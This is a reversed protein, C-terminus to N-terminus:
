LTLEMFVVKGEYFAPLEATPACVEFGAKAYIYQAAELKHFTDLVM